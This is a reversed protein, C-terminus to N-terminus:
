NSLRPSSMCRRERTRRWLLFRWRGMGELILWSGGFKARLPHLAPSGTRSRPSPLISPHLSFCRRVAKRGAKRKQSPTPQPKSNPSRVLANTTQKKPATAPGNTRSTQPFTKIKTPNQIGFSLSRHLFVHHVHTLLLFISSSRFVFTSAPKLGWLEADDMDFEGNQVARFIRNRQKKDRGALIEENEDLFEQVQAVLDEDDGSEWKFGPEFDDNEADLEEELMDLIPRGRSHERLRELRAQFSGSPPNDDDSDSSDEDSDEEVDDIADVAEAILEREEAELVKEMEEDMEDGDEDEDEEKEEGSSGRGGRTREEADERRIREEDDLDDMTVHRSGEAAMGRVFAKMAELDVEEDVQMGGDEGGGEGRGDDIEMAGIGGEVAMVGSEEDEEDEDEDDDDGWDVDSEGRRQEDRRPDVERGEKRARREDMLAGYNGFGGSARIQGFTGFMAKREQARRTIKSSRPNHHKLLSRPTRLTSSSSTTSTFQRLPRHPTTTTTTRDTNGTSSSPLATSSSPLTTETTSSAALSSALTPFSMTLPNLPPLPTATTTTTDTEVARGKEEEEEALAMEAVESVKPHPAVYVIVEDDEDQEREQGLAVGSMGVDDEVRDVLIRESSHQQGSVPTPTTDIYFGTFQQEPEEAVPREVRTDMSEAREAREVKMAEEIYVEDDGLKEVTMPEEAMANEVVTVESHEVVIASAEPEKVSLRELVEAVSTNEEVMSVEKTTTPTTTAAPVPVATSISTTSTSIAALAEIKEQFKGMDEFDIEELENENGDEEAEARAEADPDEPYETHFVRFVRDATPVHSTEEEGILHLCYFRLFACM